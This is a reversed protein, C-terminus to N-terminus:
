KLAKRHIDPVSVLMELWRASWTILRERGDVRVTQCSGRGDTAGRHYLALSTTHSSHRSDRGQRSEGRFGVDREGKVGWEGKEKEKEKEKEEGKRLDPGFRECTLVRKQL